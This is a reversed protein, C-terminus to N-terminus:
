AAKLFSNLRRPKQQAQLKEIERRQKDIEDALTRTLSEFGKVKKKLDANRIESLVLVLHLNTTKM